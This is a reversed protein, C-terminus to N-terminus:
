GEKFSSFTVWVNMNFFHGMLSGRFDYRRSGGFERFLSGCFHTVKKSRFMSRSKYLLPRLIDVGIRKHLHVIRLGFAFVMYGLRLFLLVLSMCYKYHHGVLLLAPM